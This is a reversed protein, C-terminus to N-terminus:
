PGASGVSWPDMGDVEPGNPLRFPFLHSSYVLHSSLWIDVDINSRPLFIWFDTVVMVTMQQVEFHSETHPM